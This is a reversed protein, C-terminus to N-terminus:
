NLETTWVQDAAFLDKPLRTLLGLPNIYGKPPLLPRFMEIGIIEFGIGARYLWDGIKVADGELNGAVAVGRDTIWFSEQVTFESSM